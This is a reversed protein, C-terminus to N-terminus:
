KGSPCNRTQTRPQYVEIRSDDAEVSWLIRPPVLPDMVAKM